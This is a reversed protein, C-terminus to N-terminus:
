NLDSDDFEFYDGRKSKLRSKKAKKGSKETILTPKILLYLIVICPLTVGIVILTKATGSLSSSPSPPEEIPVPFLEQEVVPFEELNLPINSLNDCFTAYIYGYKIESDDVLKCYYWLSDKGPVLIDGDISGYYVLRDELYGIKGVSNLPLKKPSSRMDIGDLAFVRFYAFNVYPTVPTGSMATVSDQKVYVEHPLDAYRCSYFTDNAKGTLLVFYTTPLKFLKHEDSDIPQSFVFVNDSQVKAYYQKQEEAFTYCGAPAFGFAVFISIAFFM